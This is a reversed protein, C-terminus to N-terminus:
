SFIDYSELSSVVISKYKQGIEKNAEQASEYNDYEIFLTSGTGSMRVSGFTSLWYKTEMLAPYKSMVLNELSNLKSSILEKCSMKSSFTDSNLEEFIQRTSITLDSLVIIFYKKEYPIKEIIEGRGQVYSSGGEIFFPIDSGIEVAMNKLVDTSLQLNFLEDIALLTVAANSSGGGLGAGIPIVKDLSVDLGTVDNYNRTMIDFAKIVLNSSSDIVDSNCSFRINETNNKKFTLTDHLNITHFISEINHYGDIRKNIVHLCSNIKAYSKCSLYNMMM